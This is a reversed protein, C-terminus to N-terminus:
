RATTTGLWVRSGDLRVAQLRYSAPGSRLRDLVTYNHGSPTGGFVAPVLSGALTEDQVENVEAIPLLVFREGRQKDRVPRQHPRATIRQDAAVCDQLGVM